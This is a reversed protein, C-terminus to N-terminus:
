PVAIRARMRRRQAHERCFERFAERTPRILYGLEAQAKRSSFAWDSLMARGGGATLIPRRNQLWDWGHLLSLGLGLWAGPIRPPLGPLALADRMEPLLEDFGVNEGGLIWEGHRSGRELALVHGRAVDQVHALCWRQGSMKPLAPYRGEALLDMVRALYNGDTLPGPGFLAGPFVVRLDNSTTRAKRVLDLATAKTQQYDLTLAGPPRRTAENGEKLGDTPGLVMVTSTVVVVKTRARAAAALTERTAVVNGLEFASREPAWDAALGAVHLLADAGELASDLAGASVLDGVLADVRGQLHHPLRAPDRVSVRVRYGSDLLETAVASGLYGTAGTLTVLPAMVLFTAYIPRRTM